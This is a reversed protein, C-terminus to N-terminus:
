FLTLFGLAGLVDRLGLSYFLYTMLAAPGKRRAQGQGEAESTGVAGAVGPSKGEPRVPTEMVSTGTAPWPRSPLPQRPLQSDPCSDWLNRNGFPPFPVFILKQSNWLTAPVQGCLAGLNSQRRWHVSSCASSSTAPQEPWNQSPCSLDTAYAM